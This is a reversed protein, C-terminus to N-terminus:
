GDEQKLRKLGFHHEIPIFDKDNHLLPIEHEIAVAAIMCDVSKRITIGKRRLARYIEASNLFVSHSMPLFVLNAMLDKTKRFEADDRIGQLIETLIVGCLCIDEREAILKELTEVHPKRNAAFFDIWVTTDVLVMM